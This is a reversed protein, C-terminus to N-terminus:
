HWALAGTCSLVQINDHLPTGLAPADQQEDLWRPKNLALSSVSMLVGLFLAATIIITESSSGKGPLLIFQCWFNKKFFSSIFEVGRKRIYKVAMVPKTAAATKASRSSLTM